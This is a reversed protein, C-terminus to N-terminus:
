HDSVPNEGDNPGDPEAARNLRRSGSVAPHGGLLYRLPWDAAQTIGIRATTVVEGPAADLPPTIRLAGRDFPQGDLARDIGLARCLRGPGRCLETRPVPRPTREAMARVGVLPDVARLLVASGSGERETVANVCWYLGYIRYVYATAPAGFLHHTRATRGVVAHSAPDHPGLYAEVEVITGGVIRRGERHLLLCGLLERAVTEVSRAYFAAALPARWRALADAASLSRAAQPTSDALRRTSRAPM